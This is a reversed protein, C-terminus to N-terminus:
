KFDVFTRRRDARARARNTPRVLSSSRSHLRAITPANIELIESPSGDDISVVLESARSSYFVITDEKHGIGCQVIFRPPRIARSSRGTAFFTQEECRDIGSSTEADNANPFLAFTCEIRVCADHMGYNEM